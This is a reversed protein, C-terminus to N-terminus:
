VLLLLNPTEAVEGGTLLGDGDTDLMRDVLRVIDDGRVSAVTEGIHSAASHAGDNALKKTATLTNRVALATRHVHEGLAKIAAVANDASLHRDTGPQSKGLLIGTALLSSNDQITITSGVLTLHKLSEVHGLKPLQGGKEPALTLKWISSRVYPDNNVNHSESM